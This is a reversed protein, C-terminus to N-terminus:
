SINEGPRPEGFRVSVVEVAVENAVTPAVQADIRYRGALLGESVDGAHSDCANQQGIAVMRARRVDDASAGGRARENMGVVSRMSAALSSFDIPWQIDALRHTRECDNGNRSFRRSLDCKVPWLALKQDHPVRHDAIRRSM